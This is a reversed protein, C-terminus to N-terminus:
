NGTIAAMKTSVAVATPKPDSNVHKPLTVITFIINIIMM